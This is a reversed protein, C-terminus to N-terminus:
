SIQMRKLTLLKKKQYTKIIQEVKLRPLKAKKAIDDISHEGDCCNLVLVEDLPFKEKGTLKKLLVPVKAFTKQTIPKYPIEKEQTKKTKDAFSIETKITEKNKDYTITIKDIKSAYTEMKNKFTLLAGLPGKKTLLVVIFDESIKFFGLNQSSLPFSHDGVALMNFNTKVFDSIYSIMDGEFEERAFLPNGAKDFIASYVRYSIISGLYNEIETALDYFFDTQM